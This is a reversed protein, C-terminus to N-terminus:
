LLLEEITIWSGPPLGVGPGGGVECDVVLVLGVSGAVVVEGPGVIEVM